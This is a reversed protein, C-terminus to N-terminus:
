EAEDDDSVIVIEFEVKVPLTTSIALLLWSPAAKDTEPPPPVYLMVLVINELLEKEPDFVPSPPAMKEEPLPVSVIVPHVKVLLEATPVPAVPPAIREDIPM